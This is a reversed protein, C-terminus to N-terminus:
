GGGPAAGGDRQEAEAEGVGEDLVLAARAHLALLLAARGEARVLALALRRRLLRRRRLVPRAAGHCYNPKMSAAAHSRPTSIAGSRTLKKVEPLSKSPSGAAQFHRDTQRNTQGFTEM